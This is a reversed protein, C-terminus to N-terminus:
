RTYVQFSPWNPPEVARDIYLRKTAFLAEPVSVGQLLASYFDQMFKRTYQDPVPWLSAVVTRAGTQLFGSVFGLNSDFTFSNIGTTECASLVVLDARNPVRRLDMSSLYNEDGSDPSASLFLRSLEPFELNIEAHSAFHMLDADAFAQGTLLDSRFEDGTLTTVERGSFLRAIDEIERAAGPLVSQMAGEGAASGALLIRQWSRADGHSQDPNALGNLSLLNIVVHKEGFYRGDRRIADFPFGALEGSALLYVTEPLPGALPALLVDGVAELEKDRNDNGNVRLGERAQRLIGVVFESDGANVLEIGSHSAVWAWVSGESFYYSLLAAEPAMSEIFKEIQAQDAVSAQQTRSGRISILNRDIANKIELNEVPNDINLRAILVRLETTDIAEPVRGDTKREKGAMPTNLVRNLAILSELPRQEPSSHQLVLDVYTKFVLARSEWYWAGLVGPLDQRYFQIDGILAQLMKMADQILSSEIMIRALLFRAEFAESPSSIPLWSALAAKLDSIECTGTYPGAKAFCRNLRARIQLSMAGSDTGLLEARAFFEQATSQEEPRGALVDLGQDYLFQAKDVDSSLYNEQQRRAGTMAEFRGKNRYEDAQMRRGERLGRGYNAAEMHVIAADMTELAREMYGMAQYAHALSSGTRGMGEASNLERWLDLSHNLAEVAQPFLSLRRYLRGLESWNYAL